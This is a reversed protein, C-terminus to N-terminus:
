FLIGPPATVSKDVTFEPNDIKCFYDTKTKPYSIFRFSQTQLSGLGIKFNLPREPGCPVANTKIDYQYVGLDASTLTIRATSEKAQLPLFEFTCISESKPSIVLSQPASVESNSSSGSFTVPTTLPNYIVVDRSLVQRVASTMEITSIIGAPLGRYNINYYLYEQTTENKFIVKFNYIGDKYAFFNLKYEKTSLPPVIILLLLGDIFDHGKVLIGSDQKSFEQTVKFRQSRRLWNNVPLLEIVSTKCTIERTITEAVLPKDATGTMKYLIGTGDPLPFFISAEHRGGEGTGNTELPCFTLDYSKSQGIDVDVFQPGSWYENDIIPQIHWPTSSKNTLTISKVDPSRVPSAFKLIDTHAPQPICMGTLTLYLPSAGEIECPINEYRVDQNLEIPNFNVELAIEM